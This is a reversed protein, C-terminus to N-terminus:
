IKTNTVLKKIMEGLNEPNVYNTPMRFEEPVLIDMEKKAYGCVISPKGMMTAETSATAGYVDSELEDIFIDCKDLEELVKSNSSNTVEKYDFKLGEAKLNAIQQRIIKSGKLLPDSPAHLIQVGKKRKQIKKHSIKLKDTPVGIINYILIPKNHLHGSLPNGILLDAFETRANIKKKLELTKRHLM